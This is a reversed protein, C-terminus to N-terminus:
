LAWRRGRGRLARRGHHIPGDMAAGARRLCDSADGRCRSSRPDGPRTLAHRGATAFTNYTGRTACICASASFEDIGRGSRAGKAATDVALRSSGLTADGEQRQKAAYAPR